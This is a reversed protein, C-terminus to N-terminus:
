KILNDKKGQECHKGTFGSVCQCQYGGHQNNCTAGNQCTKNLCEDIDPFYRIEIVNKAIFQSFLQSM